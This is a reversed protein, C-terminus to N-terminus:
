TSTEISVASVKLATNMSSPPMSPMGPSYDPINTWSGAHATVNSTIPLADFFLVRADDYVLRGEDWRDLSRYRHLIEQLVEADIAAEIEGEAVQELFRLSSSRYPHERGSAYMLIKSDILIM